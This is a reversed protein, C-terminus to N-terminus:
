SAAAAHQNALDYALANLARRDQGTHVLVAAQRLWDIRRHRDAIGGKALFRAFEAMVEAITNGPELACWNVALHLLEATTAEDLPLAPSADPRAAM